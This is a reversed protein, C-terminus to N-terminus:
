LKILRGQYSTLGNPSQLNYFYIGAPWDLSPIRIDKENQIFYHHYVLKGQANLIRFEADSSMNEPWVIQIEDWFPNPIVQLSLEPTKSASLLCAAKIEAISNCGSGNNEVTLFGEKDINQCVIPIACEQLKSNRTLVLRKLNTFFNFDSIDEIDSTTLIYQEPNFKSIGDITQNFRTEFSYVSDVIITKLTQIKPNDYLLISRIFKSKIGEFSLLENLSNIKLQHSITDITLGSLSKLKQNSSISLTGVKKLNKLQSIDELSDVNIIQIVNCQILNDLGKLAKIKTDTLKLLDIFQLSYLSDLREIEFGKINLTNEVFRCGPYNIPFSDIWGQSKIQLEDIRCTDQGKSDFCLGFLGFCIVIFVLSRYDLSKNNKM